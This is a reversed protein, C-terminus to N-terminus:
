PPGEEDSAKHALTELRNSLVLITALTSRIVRLPHESDTRVLSRMISFTHGRVLGLELVAKAGRFRLLRDEITGQKTPLSIEDGHLLSLSAPELQSQLEAPLSAAPDGEIRMTEKLHRESIVHRDKEAGSVVPAPVVAERESWWPRALAPDQRLYATAPDTLGLWWRRWPSLPRPQSRIEGSANEPGSLGPLQESM